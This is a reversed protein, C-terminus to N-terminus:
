RGAPAGAPAPAGRGPIPRRELPKVVSVGRGHVVVAPWVRGLPADFMVWLLQNPLGVEDIRFWDRWAGGPERVRLVGDQSRDSTERHHGSDDESSERALAAFDEGAQARALLSAALAVAQERTRTINHRHPYADRHHIHIVQARAEQSGYALFREELTRAEAAPIRRAFWFGGMWDVLPTLEGIRARMLALDRLDPARPDRPLIGGFGYACAGLANSHERALQGLDDGALVKARLSTALAHAEERTRPLRRGKTAHEASTYTIWIEQGYYRGDASPQIGASVDPRAAPGGGGPPPEPPREGCGALLALLAALTGAAWAGPGHRGRLLPLPPPAAAPEPAPRDSRPRRRASTTPVPPARLLPDTARPAAPWANM